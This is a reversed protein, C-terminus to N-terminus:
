GTSTPPTGSLLAAVAFVVMGLALELGVSSSLGQMQGVPLPRSSRVRWENVGALVLMVALLAAKIL